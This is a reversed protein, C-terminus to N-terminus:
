TLFDFTRVVLDNCMLYCGLPMIIIAFRFLINAIFYDVVILM